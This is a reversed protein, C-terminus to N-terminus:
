DGVKKQKKLLWMAFNEFTANVFGYLENFENLLKQLKKSGHKMNYIYIKGKITASGNYQNNITTSSNYQNDITASDNDQNNITASGNDQNDITADQMNSCLVRFIRAENEKITKRAKAILKSNPKGQLFFQKKHYHEIVDKNNHTDPEIRYGCKKTDDYIVNLALYDDKNQVESSHSSGNGIVVEKFNVLVAVGKCM